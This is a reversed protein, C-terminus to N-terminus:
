LLKIITKCITDVESLKLKPYVPLSINTSGYNDANKFNRPNLAYKKKYYTMKPLIRTYHVSVGINEKKLERLIRDRDKCFIQFIFFSCNKSYPMCKVKDHNLFNKIYRKAIIHRQKLNDKYKIIQNLGLAAQFDTM